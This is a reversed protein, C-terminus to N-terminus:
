RTLSNITDVAQSEFFGDGDADERVIVLKRGRDIRLERVGRGNELRQWWPDSSQLFQSFLEEERLGERAVPQRARPGHDLQGIGLIAASGATLTLVIPVWNVVSSEMGGSSLSETSPNFATAPAIAGSGHELDDAALPEDGESERVLRELRGAAREAYADPVVLQFRTTWYGHVGDFEESLTVTVPIDERRGLEHAFYGAEAANQFRAIVTMDSTDLEDNGVAEERRHDVAAITGAEVDDSYRIRRHDDVGVDNSCGPCFVQRERLLKGCNPCQIM